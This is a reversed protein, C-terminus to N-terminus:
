RQGIKSVGGPPRGLVLHPGSVSRPSRRPPPPRRPPLAREPSRTKPPAGSSQSSSPSLPRGWRPTEAGGGGRSSPAAGAGPCPRSGRAEVRGAGRAWGRPVKKRLGQPKLRFKADLLGVQCSPLLSLCRSFVMKELRRPTQPEDDAGGARLGPGARGGVQAGLENPGLAAARRPLAAPAAPTAPPRRFRKGPKEM